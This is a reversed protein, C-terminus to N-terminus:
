KAALVRMLQEMRKRDEASQKAMEMLHTNTSSTAQQQATALTSVQEAMRTHNQAMERMMAQNVQQANTQSTMLADHRTSDASEKAIRRLKTEEAYSHLCNQKDPVDLEGGKRKARAADKAVAENATGTGTHASM